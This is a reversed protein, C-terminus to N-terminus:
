FMTLCSKGTTSEGINFCALLAHFLTLDVADLCAAEKEGGEVKYGGAPARTAGQGEERQAADLSM